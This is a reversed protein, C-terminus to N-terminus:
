LSDFYLGLQQKETYAGLDIDTTEKWKVYAQLQESDSECCHTDNIAELYNDLLKHALEKAKKSTQTSNCIEITSGLHLLKDILETKNMINIKLEVSSIM